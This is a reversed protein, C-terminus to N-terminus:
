RCLRDGACWPRPAEDDAEQGLEPARRLTKLGDQLRWCGLCRAVAFSASHHCASFSAQRQGSPAEV